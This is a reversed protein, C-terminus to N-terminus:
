MWSAGKLKLSSWLAATQQLRIYDTAFLRRGVTIEKHLQACADCVVHLVEGFWTTATTQWIAGPPPLLGLACWFCLLFKLTWQSGAELRSTSNRDVRSSRKPTLDVIWWSISNLFAAFITEPTEPGARGPHSALPFINNHRHQALMYSLKM